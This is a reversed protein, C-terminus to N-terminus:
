AWRRAAAAWGPTWCKAVTERVVQKWTQGPQPPWGYSYAAPWAGAAMWAGLALVHARLRVAASTRQGGPRVRLRRHHWPRATM